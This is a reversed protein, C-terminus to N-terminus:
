KLLAALVKGDADKLAQGFTAALTPAVDVINAREIFAGDKFSPGHAMFIPQPGKEPLYGHGYSPRGTQLAECNYKSGFAFGEEAELMFSYPGSQGYKELLEDKTFLKEIGYKGSQHLQQLYAYVRDYLKQNTNDRLFVMTSPGTSQAFAQWDYIKGDPGIQLFGAEKLLVNIQIYKDYAIQGHDSLIVFDTQELVGAEEMAAIVDGLWLDTQDLAATIHDGFVGRSHRMSDLICNHVFLVDPATNRILSCTCGMIFADFLQETPVSGRVSKPFLHLNEKVATLAAEDAGQQAFIEEVRDAEGPYYFFYENIIHDINPNCATIPWYVGATTLGARKAAAFIDECFVNTSYLPWHVIGDYSTNVACNAYVGHKCPYCGTALSTHAPYTIAPYVTLVKDVEARKGLIKQFNPKTSLYAIDERVMADMSLVFLKKKM